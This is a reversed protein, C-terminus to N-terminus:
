TVTERTLFIPAPGLMWDVISSLDTTLDQINRAARSHFAFPKTSEITIVAGVAGEGSDLFRQVPIIYKSKAIRKEPLNFPHWSPDTHPINIQYGTKAAMELPTGEIRVTSEDNQNTRVCTRASYRNGENEFVFLAISTSSRELGLTAILRELAFITFEHKARIIDDEHGDVFKTGIALKRAFEALALQGNEACIRRQDDIKSAHITKHAWRAVLLIVLVTMCFISGEFFQIIKMTIVENEDGMEKTIELIYGLALYVLTFHGVLVIWHALDAFILVSRAVSSKDFSVGSCRSAFWLRVRYPWWHKHQILEENMAKIWEERDQFTYNRNHIAGKARYRWLPKAM